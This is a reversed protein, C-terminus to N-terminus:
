KDSWAYFKISRFIFSYSISVIVAILNGSKLLHMDVENFAVSGCYLIIIYFIMILPIAVFFLGEFLKPCRHGISYYDFVSSVIFSSCFFLFAGDKIVKDYNTNLHFFSSFIILAIIQLLSITINVINWGFSKLFAFFIKM